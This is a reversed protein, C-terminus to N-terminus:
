KNDNEQKGPPRRGEIRILYIGQEANLQITQNYVKDVKINQAEYVLKSQANYIRISIVENNNGNLEITFNGNNPNPSVSVKFGALNESVGSTHVALTM